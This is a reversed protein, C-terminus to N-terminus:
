IFPTLMHNIFDLAKHEDQYDRKVTSFAKFFTDLTEMQRKKFYETEVEDCITSLTEEWVEMPSHCYFRYYYPNIKAKQLKYTERFRKFGWECHFHDFVTYLKCGPFHTKFNEMDLIINCSIGIMALMEGNFDVQVLYLVCKEDYEQLAKGRMNPSLFAM